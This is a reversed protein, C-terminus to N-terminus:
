GKVNSFYKKCAKVEMNRPTEQLKQELMALKSNIHGNIENHIGDSTRQSPLQLSKTRLLKQLLQQGTESRSIQGMTDGPPNGPGPINSTHISDGTIERKITASSPEGSDGSDCNIERPEQKINQLTIKCLDRESSVESEAVDASVSPQPLNSSSKPSQGNFPIISAPKQASSGQPESKLVSAEQPAKVIPSRLPSAATAGINSFPSNKGAGCDSRSTPSPHNSVSTTGFDHKNFSAPSSGTEQVSSGAPSGVHSPSAQFPSLARVSLCQGQAPPTQRMGMIQRQQGSHPSGPSGQGMLQRPSMPRAMHGLPTPRVQGIMPRALPVQGRMMQHQQMMQQQTTSNYQPSVGQSTQQPHLSGPNQFQPAMVSPQGIAGQQQSSGVPGQKAAFAYPHQQQAELGSMRPGVPQPGQPRIQGQATQGQLRLLQGQQQAQRQAIIAQIQQLQQNPPLHCLQPNQAILAQINIPARIQGPPAGSRQTMMIQQSRNLQQQALVDQQQNPNGTIAAQNQGSQQVLMGQIQAVNQGTQQLQQAVYCMQQGEQKVQETNLSNQRQLALQMQEQPQLGTQQNNVYGHQQASGANQGPQQQTAQQQQVMYAVTTPQQGLAGQLDGSPGQQMQIPTSSGAQQPPTKPSLIGGDKPAPSQVGQSLSPVGQQLHDVNGQIGSTSPTGLTGQQESAGMQTLQRQQPIQQQQLQALNKTTNQQQQSLLMRQALVSQQQATLQGQPGRLVHQPESSVQQGMLGQPRQLQQMPQNAAMGQQGTMMSQNLTMPQAMINSQAQGVAQNGMMGQPVQILSKQHQQNSILGPQLNQQQQGMLANNMLTQPAQGGISGAQQNMVGPQQSQHTVPQQGMMFQQQLKQVMQMRQQMQREQLLRPDPGQAGTGQPFFGGPPVPPGTNHTGPHPTQGATFPHVQPMRVAMGGQPIGGPVQGMMPGGQQGMIMQGPMKSLMHPGQNSPGPALMSSGQQHQQQKSRYEAIM